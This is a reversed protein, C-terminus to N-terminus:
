STNGFDMDTSGCPCCHLFDKQLGPQEILKMLNGYFQFKKKLRPQPKRKLFSTASIAAVLETSTLLTLDGVAKWPMISTLSTQRWM